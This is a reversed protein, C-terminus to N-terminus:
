IRHRNWRASEMSVTHSISYRRSDQIHRVRWYHLDWESLGSLPSHGMPQLGPEKTENLPILKQCTGCVFRIPSDEVVKVKEPHKKKLM